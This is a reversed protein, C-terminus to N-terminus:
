LRTLCSKIKMVILLRGSIPLSKKLGQFDIPWSKNIKGNGIQKEKKRGKRGSFIFILGKGNVICANRIRREGKKNKAQRGFCVRLSSYL